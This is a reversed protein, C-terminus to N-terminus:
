IGGDKAVGTMGKIGRAQLVPDTSAALAMQTVLSYVEFCCLVRFSFWKGITRWRVRQTVPLFDMLGEENAYKTHKTTTVATKLIFDEFWFRNHFLRFGFVSGHGEAGWVV